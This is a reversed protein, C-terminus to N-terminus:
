GQSAVEALPTQREANEGNESKAGDSSAGPLML